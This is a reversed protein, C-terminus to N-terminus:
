YVRKEWPGNAQKERCVLYTRLMSESEHASLSPCRGPIIPALTVTAAKCRGNNVNSNGLLPQYYLQKSLQRQRAAPTYTAINHIIYYINESHLLVFHNYLQKSLQRQRAGPTYTVIDHIIYYVNESYLLVFHDYLQKSLQRQRAGPTDTV